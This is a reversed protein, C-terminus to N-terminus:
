VGCCIIFFSSSCILTGPHGYFVQGLFFFRLSFFSLFYANPCACSLDGALVRLLNSLVAVSRVFASNIRIFGNCTFVPFYVSIYIYIYIYWIRRPGHSAPLAAPRLGISSQWIKHIIAASIVIYSTSSSTSSSSATAGATWVTTLLMAFSGIVSASYDHKLLILGRQHRTM